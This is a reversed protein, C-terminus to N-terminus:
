FIDRMKQILAELSIVYINRKLPYYSDTSPIVIFTKLPDIDEIAAYNEKSLSPSLSAKCEICIKRSANSVVLDIESGTDALVVTMIWWAESLRFCILNESSKM